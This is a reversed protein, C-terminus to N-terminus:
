ASPISALWKRLSDIDCLDFMREQLQDLESLSLERIRQVLEGSLEGCQRQLVAVIVGAKGEAQGEARGEAQGEARGEAKGEAKALQEVSTVYPMTLQEELHDL